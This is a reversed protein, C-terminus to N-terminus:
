WFCDRVLVAHVFHVAHSSAAHVVRAFSARAPCAAVFITDRRMPAHVAHVAGLVHTLPRVAVIYTDLGKILAYEIRKVVSDDRWALGAARGAAEGAGTGKKRVACPKCKPEISEAYSLMRETANDCRNLLVDEVFELLEKDIKEYVDEKVQAPQL